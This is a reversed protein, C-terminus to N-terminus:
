RIVQTKNEYIIDDLLVRIAYIGSLLGTPNIEWDNSLNPKSAQYVLQGMSNYVYVKAQAVKGLNQRIILRGFSPNPEISILNKAVTNVIVIVNTYSVNGDATLLKLRYYNNGNFPNIDDFQYNTSYSTSESVKIYGIEQFDFGNSSREVIFVEDKDASAQWIISVKGIEKKAYFAFINLPLPNNPVITSCFTGSPACSGGISFQVDCNDPPTRRWYL